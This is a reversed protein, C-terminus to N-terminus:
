EFVGGNLQDFLNKPKAKNPYLKDYLPCFDRLFTDLPGEERQPPFDRCFDPRIEYCGCDDGNWEPCERVELLASHTDDVTRVEWDWGRTGYFDKLYDLEVTPCVKITLYRCCSTNCNKCIDSSEKTNNKM